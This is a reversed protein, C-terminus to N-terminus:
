PAKNLSEMESKGSEHEKIERQGAKRRQRRFM